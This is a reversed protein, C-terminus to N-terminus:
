AYYIFSFVVSALTALILMLWCCGVGCLGSPDVPAEEGGRSGASKVKVIGGSDSVGVLVLECGAIM